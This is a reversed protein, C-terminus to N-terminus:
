NSRERRQSSDLKFLFFGTGQPANGVQDRCGQRVGAPKRLLDSTGSECRQAPFVQGHRAACKRLLNVASSAFPLHFYVKIGTIVMISHEKFLFQVFSYKPTHKNPVYISFMSVLKILLFFFITHNCKVALFDHVTYACKKYFAFLLIKMDEELSCFQFFSGFYLQNFKSDPTKTFVTVLGDLAVM